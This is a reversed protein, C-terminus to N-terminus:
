LVADDGNILVRTAGPFTNTGSIAVTPTGVLTFFQGSATGSGSSGLVSLEPAIHFDSSGASQNVGILAFVHEGVALRSGVPGLDQYYVPSTPANCCSAEHSNGGTTATFSVSTGAANTLNQRTLEVGDLYAVFGDDYDVGIQLHQAPDFATGVTFTKRLYVTTYKNLMDSLTTNENTIAADGYGFGGTGATWTTDLSADSITDWSAQPANTGKHIRWSDNYHALSTAPQSPAGIQFTLTQAAVPLATLLALSFIRLFLQLTRMYMFVFRGSGMQTIIQALGKM